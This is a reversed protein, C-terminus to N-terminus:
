EFVERPMLGHREQYSLLANGAARFRPDIRVRAALIVLMHRKMENIDDNYMRGYVDPTNSRLYFHPERDPHRYEWCCTCGFGDERHSKGVLECAVRIALNVASSDSRELDLRVINAVLLDSISDYHAAIGPDDLTACELLAVGILDISEVDKNTLWLRRAEHRQWERERERRQKFRSKAMTM